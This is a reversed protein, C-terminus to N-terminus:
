NYNIKKKEKKFFTKSYNISVPEKIILINHVHGLADLGVCRHISGQFGTQPFNKWIGLLEYIFTNWLSKRWSSWFTM